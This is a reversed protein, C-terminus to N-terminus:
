EMYEKMKDANIKLNDTRCYSAANIEEYFEGIIYRENSQADVIYVKSNDVEYALCHGSLTGNWGVRVLGRSGNPQKKLEDDLKNLLSKSEESTINISKYDTFDSNGITNIKANKYVLKLVSETNVGRLSTKATVDYGRRRMDYTLSCMVCNNKTNEDWNKYEPNVREQDEEQSLDSTKLHFGTKKDVPNSEREQEFQKAKKKAAKEALDGKILKVLGSPTNVAIIPLTLFSGAFGTLAFFGVSFATGVSLMMAQSVADTRTSRNSGPTPTIRGDYKGNTTNKLSSGTSISSDLPYPPGNKVGWKQGIVGHHYLENTDLNWSYDNKM